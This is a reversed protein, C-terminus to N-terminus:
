LFSLFVFFLGVVLFVHSSLFISVINDPLNSDTFVTKLKGYQHAHVLMWLFFVACYVYKADISSTMLGAKLLLLLVLFARIPKRGLKREISDAIGKETDTLANYSKWIIYLSILYVAVGTVGVAIKLKM